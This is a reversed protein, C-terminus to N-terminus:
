IERRGGPEVRGSVGRGEGVSKRDGLPLKPAQRGVLRVQSRDDLVVTDGDVVEIVTAAPGAELAAAPSAPWVVSLLLLLLRRVSMPRGDKVRNGTPTWFMQM